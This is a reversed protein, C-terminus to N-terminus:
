TPLSWRDTDRAELLGERELAALYAVLPPRHRAPLMAALEDGSFAGGSRLADIIRGRAFRATEPFPRPTRTVPAPAPAGARRWRCGARLPCIDCAPSRARCVLAGFDMLALNHQRAKAADRPLSAAAVLAVDAPAERPLAAGLVVRGLVRGINTDVVPVRAEAAFSAVAAATYKGVGPLLWLLAPDVPVEGDYEAVVARAARLLNLARRNYGLGGWAQIVETPSAAALRGATPWRELWATYYPLVREVQTQQLMVESLLVAYPDRTVRWPLDHRGNVAYWARLAATAAPSLKESM